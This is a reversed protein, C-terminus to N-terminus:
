ECVPYGDQNFGAFSGSLCTYECADGHGIDNCVCEGLQNIDGQVCASATPGTYDMPSMRMNLRNATSGFEIHFDLSPMVFCQGAPAYLELVALGQEFTSPEPQRPETADPNYPNVYTNAVVVVEVTNIDLRRFGVSLIRKGWRGQEQSQYWLRALTRWAASSGTEDLIQPYEHTIDRTPIIGGGGLLPPDWHIQANPVRTSAWNPADKWLDGVNVRWLQWTGPLPDCGESFLCASGDAATPQSAACQVPSQCLQLSGYVQEGARPGNDGGDPIGVCTGYRNAFKSFCAYKWSSRDQDLIQCEELSVGPADLTLECTGSANVAYGYV